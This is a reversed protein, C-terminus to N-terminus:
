EALECPEGSKGQLLARERKKVLTRLTAGSAFIPASEKGFSWSKFENTYLRSELSKRFDAATKFRTIM